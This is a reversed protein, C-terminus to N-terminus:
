KVRELRQSIVLAKVLEVPARLPAITGQDPIWEGLHFLSFHEPHSKFPSEGDGCADEFLREAEGFSRAYFPNMFAGVASDYVAVIKLDM